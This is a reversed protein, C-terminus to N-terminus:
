KAPFLKDIAALVETLGATMSEKSRSRLEVRVLSSDSAYFIREDFPVDPVDTAQEALMAPLNNPSTAPSYGYEKQLELLAPVAAKAAAPDKCEFVHVQTYWENQFLVQALGNTAGCTELLTAEAPSFQSKQRAGSVTTKGSSKEDLKGKVGDLPMPPPKSTTTTPATTQTSSNAASPTSATGSTFWWIGGGILGLVLVVGIIAFVKGKGSGGGEDFVEPGQAIWGPSPDAIPGFGDQNGWPTGGQPPPASQWGGPPQQQQPLPGSPPGVPRVFQTRDADGGGGGRHTNVVQTADPNAGGQQVVQTAESSPPQQGPPTADWRFPPAFPGQQGPQAQPPTGGSSAALVEDRRRRYDDASIRGSALDADLKQLEDQWTM